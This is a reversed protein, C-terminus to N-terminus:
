LLKFEIQCTQPNYGLFLEGNRLQVAYKGFIEYRWGSLFRVSLNGGAFCDLEDQLAIIKTATKEKIGILDLLLQLMRLLKKKNSHTNKEIPLPFFAGKEKILSQNIVDLVEQSFGNKFFSSTIGRLNKLEDITKPHAKVLEQLVEDRLIQRRPKDLCKAKHERWLYLDQYLYKLNDTRFNYKIKGAIQADSPDYLEKHSLLSMEEEIWSFRNMEELKSKLLVYVDRLYTVDNLAYKEQASTLPRKSWDTYRMSKDIQVQMLDLVLQEYGVCDGYGCVMAAVQTDFLPTPIKKTLCYFNEVDQRASHFVKVVKPNDMLEFFPDLDLENSLPDICYAEDQSAVQILCLKPYFTHERLFETDVTVFPYTAFRQCIEKLENSKTIIMRQIKCKKKSKILDM